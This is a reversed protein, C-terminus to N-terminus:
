FYLRFFITEAASWTLLSLKFLSKPPEKRRRSCSLVSHLQLGPCLHWINCLPVFFTISWNSSCEKSREKRWFATTNPHKCLGTLSSRHPRESTLMSSFCISHWSSVWHIQTRIVIFPCLRTKHKETQNDSRDKPSERPGTFKNFPLSKRHSNKCLWTKKQTTVRPLLANKNRAREKM